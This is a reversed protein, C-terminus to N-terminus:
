LGASFRHQAPRTHHTAARGRHSAWELRPNAWVELSFGLFTLGVVVLTICAGPPLMWWTWVDSIFITPYAFAYHLISGWSKITPDGLGLFSLGSEALIVHQFELIFRVLALPIASPALHLILIRADRAGILRAAQVYDKNRESLIQSRVLRAARPWGFLVFVLALTWMGPKLFAAILIILPFRPIALFVDVIRMLAFGLRDYYGSIIGIAVGFGTSIVASLFAITLSFRAGYLLESLIDNGIDNTGLPHVRGPPLMPEFLTCPDHPSILPAFTALLGIALLFSIAVLGLPEERVFQSLRSM